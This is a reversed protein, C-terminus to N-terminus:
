LYNESFSSVDGVGTGRRMSRDEGEYRGGMGGM